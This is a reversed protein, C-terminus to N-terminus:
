GKRTEPTDIGNLRIIFKTPRSNFILAVKVTDGDTVKVVKALFIKYNLSFEEADKISLLQNYNDQSIPQKVYEHPIEHLITKTATDIM